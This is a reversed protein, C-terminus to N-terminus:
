FDEEHTDLIHLDSMGNDYEAAEDFEDFMAIPTGRLGSEDEEGMRVVVFSDPFKDCIEYFSMEEREFILVM